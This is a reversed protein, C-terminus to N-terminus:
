GADDALLGVAFCWCDRLYFLFSLGVVRFAAGVALNTGRAFLNPYAAVVAVLWAAVAWWGRLWDILGFRPPRTRASAEPTLYSRARGDWKSSKAPPSPIQIHRRTHRHHPSPVVGRACRM